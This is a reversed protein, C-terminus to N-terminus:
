DCFSPASGWIGNGGKPRGGAGTARHSGLAVLLPRARCSSSGSAVPEPPPSQHHHIPSPTDSLPHGHGTSRVALQWSRIPSPLSRICPPAWCSARWCRQGARGAGFGGSSWGSGSGVSRSTPIPLSLLPQLHCTTAPQIYGSAGRGRHLSRRAPSTMQHPRPFPMM